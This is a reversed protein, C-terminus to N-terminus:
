VPSICHSSTLGAIELGGLFQRPVLPPPNFLDSQVLSIKLKSVSEIVHGKMCTKKCKLPASCFDRHYNSRAMLNDLASVSGIFLKDKTCDERKVYQYSPVFPQSFDQTSECNGHTELFFNLLKNLMETNTVTTEKGESIIGKAKSIKNLISSKEDASHYGYEFSTRKYSGQENMKRKRDKRREKSSSPWKQAKQNNKHM